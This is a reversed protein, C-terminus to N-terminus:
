YVTLTYRIRAHNLLFEVSKSQVTLMIIHSLFFCMRKYIKNGSERLSGFIKVAAVSCKLRSSLFLSDCKHSWLICFAHLIFLSFFLVIDDICRHYCSYIRFQCVYLDIQWNLSISFIYLVWCFSTDIYNNMMRRNRHLKILLVLIFSM